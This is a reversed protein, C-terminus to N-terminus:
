IADLEGKAQRLEHYAVTVFVAFYATVIAQLVYGGAMASWFVADIDILLVDFALSSVARWLIALLVILLVLGALRWRFGKTLEASRAFAEQINIKEVVAVPMVVFFVAAVYIGPILLALSALGVMVGFALGIFLLPLIRELAQDLISGLSAPQARLQAYTGHALIAILFYRLLSDVIVMVFLASMFESATEGQLLALVWRVDFIFAPAMLLLAFLV